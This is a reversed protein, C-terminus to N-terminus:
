NRRNTPWPMGGSKSNIDRDIHMMKLMELIIYHPGSELEVGGWCCAPECGNVTYHRPNGWEKVIITVRRVFYCYLKKTQKFKVEKGVSCM